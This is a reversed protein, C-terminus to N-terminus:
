RSRSFLRYAPAALAVLVGAFSALVGLSRTRSM